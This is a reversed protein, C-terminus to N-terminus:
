RAEEFTVELAFSNCQREIARLCCEIDRLSRCYTGYGYLSVPRFMFSRVRYNGKYRNIYSRFKKNPQLDMAQSFITQGEYM